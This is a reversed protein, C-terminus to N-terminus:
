GILFGLRSKKVQKYTAGSCYMIANLLGRTIELYSSCNLSLNVSTQSLAPIKAEGLYVEFFDKGTQIHGQLWNEGDASVEFVIDLKGRRADASGYQPCYHLETHPDTYVRLCDSRTPKIDKVESQRFIQKRPDAYPDKYTKM